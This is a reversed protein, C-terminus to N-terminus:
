LIALLWSVVWSCNLVMRRITTSGNNYLQEITHVLKKDMNYKQM